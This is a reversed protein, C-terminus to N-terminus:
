LEKVYRKVKAIEESSADDLLDGFKEIKCRELEVYIPPDKYVMKGNERHGEQFSVVPYYITEDIVGGLSFGGYFNQNNLPMSPIGSFAYSEYFTIDIKKVMRVIKYIFYAIYIAIYVYTLIKGFVSTRQSKGKFYLEPVKGFLDFESFIKIDKICQQM